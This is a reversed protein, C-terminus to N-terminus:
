SLAARREKMNEWRKIKGRYKTTIKQFENKHMTICVVFRMEAQLKEDVTEM